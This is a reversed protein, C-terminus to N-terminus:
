RTLAALMMLNAANLLFVQNNRTKKIKALDLLMCWDSNVFKIITAFRSKGSSVQALFSFFYCDVCVGQLYLQM